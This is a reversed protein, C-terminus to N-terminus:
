GEPKRAGGVAAETDDSGTPGCRRLSSPPAPRVQGAPSPHTSRSGRGRHASRNPVSPASQPGSRLRPPRPASVRLAERAKTGAAARPFRQGRNSLEGSGRREGRRHACSPGSSRSVAAPVSVGQTVASAAKPKTFGLLSLWVRQEPSDVKMAGGGGRAHVYENAREGENMCKTPVPVNGCLSGRGCKLVSAKM